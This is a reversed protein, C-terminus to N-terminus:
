TLGTNRGLIKLLQMVQGKKVYSGWNVTPKLYMVKVELSGRKVSLGVFNSTPTVKFLRVRGELPSYVPEGPVSVIDFGKHVRKGGDRSAGYHGCGDGDCGRRLHKRLIRMKSSKFTFSYILFIVIIGIIFAALKSINGTGRVM